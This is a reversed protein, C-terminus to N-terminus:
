YNVSSLTSACNQMSFLLYNILFWDFSRMIRGVDFEIGAFPACILLVIICSLYDSVSVSIQMHIYIYASLLSLKNHMSLSVISVAEYNCVASLPNMQINKVGM